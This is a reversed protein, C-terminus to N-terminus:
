PYRRKEFSAVERMLKAKTLDRMTEEAFFSGTKVRDGNKDKM